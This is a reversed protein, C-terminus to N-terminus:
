VIKWLNKLRDLDCDPPSGYIVEYMNTEQENLWNFPVGCNAKYHTIVTEKDIQSVLYLTYKWTEPIFTYLKIPVPLGSAKNAIHVANKNLRESYGSAGPSRSITPFPDAM